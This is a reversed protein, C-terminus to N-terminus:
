SRAPRARTRRARGVLARRHTLLWGALLALGLVGYVTRLLGPHLVLWALLLPLWTIGSTAALWLRRLDGVPGAGGRGEPLRRPLAFRGAVLLLAVLVMVWAFARVLPGIVLVWLLGIVLAAAAGGAVVAVLSRREPADGPRRSLPLTVQGTQEPRM